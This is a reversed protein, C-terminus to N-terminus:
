AGAGYMTKLPTGGSDYIILSVVSKLENQSVADDAINVEAVANNALKSQTVSSDPLYGNPNTEVWQSTDGDDYYIFMNGASDNWWLDTDSPSGPPTNSITVFSGLALSEIKDYIANKSAADLNANWGVGYATDSIVDATAGAEIGNLKSHDANTFDNTTLGGDGVSYTTNTYNGAHIVTAGQDTTWDIHSNSDVGTLSNHTFDSSTYTTNTYNGSHINTAGLDSTWDLHENAVFGTLDDHTFDSSVYTTNTDTYNGSHIVTAGQNKTWDIHSNSDVGILNDHTVIAEIEGATQDATASAEIANLKSHDANTFDNTTLGGDGVSYTTNTYNGSHINTGGQDSTWDIHEGSDVGSLSNHAFDGATYTTNTDTYNGSHIVTAGQDTTWDIHEGSDVGSLNNHTFDGSTYTTNTDTYNGSHIVTAGQDSTWDIHEGSDVGALSNHTFDGSTYTTNTDTYNGSHIVTAGQDTTWDIYEASDIGDLKIGDAAIDRGDVTGAVNINGAFTASDLVQLTGDIRVKSGSDVNTGILVNGDFEALQVTGDDIVEISPIGSVDGVSFITGSMSNSISFLQGLSGDFSIAGSDLVNLTITDSDFGTFEIKPFDSDVGVNPTILINKSSNPM